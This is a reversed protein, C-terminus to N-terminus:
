ASLSFSKDARQGSLLLVCIQVSASCSGIMDHVESALVFIAADFHFHGDTYTCM